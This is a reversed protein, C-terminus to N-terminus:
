NLKGSPAEMTALRNDKTTLSTFRYGYHELLLFYRLQSRPLTPYSLLALDSLTKPVGKVKSKHMLHLTVNHLEHPPTVRCMDAWMRIVGGASMGGKFTLDHILAEGDDGVQLGTMVSWILPHEAYHNQGLIGYVPHCIFVGSVSTWDDVEDILGQWQDNLKVTTSM